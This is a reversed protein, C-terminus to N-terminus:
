EYPSNLIFRLGLFVEHASSKLDFYVVGDDINNDPSVKGFDAYRYGLDLAVNDTIEWAAGAGINWAFNTETKNYHGIDDSQLEASVLALGLGAGIYPTVPSSNHIDFYANAFFSQAGLDLKDTSDNVYTWTQGKKGRWAYEFETRLPVDYDFFYNYGLALGLAVRGKSYGDGGSTTELIDGAYDDSNTKVKMHSYGIKPAIYFGEALASVAPAVFLTLAVALVMLRIKKM